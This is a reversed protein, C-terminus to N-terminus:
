NKKVKKAYDLVREVDEQKKLKLLHSVVPESSGGLVKKVVTDVISCAVDVDKCVPTYVYAISKKDQKLLGKRALSNMITMVTTYAIKREKRLKEYVERVTVQDTKWIVRMIDAELPGLGEIGIRKSKVTNKGKSAGM